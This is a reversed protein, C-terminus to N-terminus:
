DKFSVVKFTVRNGRGEKMKLATAAVINLFSAALFKAKFLLPCRSRRVRSNNFIMLTGPQILDPLESMQHHTVEGSTRGLCMLRDQGREGSPKQAILEEPLDFYFDSTKM